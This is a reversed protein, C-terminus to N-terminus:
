DHVSSLLDGHGLDILDYRLYQALEVELHRMISLPLCMIRREFDLSTHFAKQSSPFRSRSSKFVIAHKSWLLERYFAIQGVLWNLVDSGGVEM